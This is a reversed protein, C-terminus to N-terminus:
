RVQPALRSPQDTYDAYEAYYGDYGADPATDSQNLVVGITRGKGVTEIARKVLAAPTSRARIVLVVGDVMASLVQADPLLVLPPTDIIVWDFAERAEALLRRMRDSTLRSMPDPHPRGAPLVSLRPSVQRVLLKADEPADLGESLGSAAALGFMEHLMPRRLDGDIILVRKQYSESLTLALNCATLTKGEAAVASAVMVVHTGAQAQADLLLAGLARYQERPIPMMKQDLISKEAFRPSVHPAEESQPAPPVARSEMVPAPPPLEIPFVEADLPPPVAATATVPADIANGAPETPTRLAARRMAEDVRSM